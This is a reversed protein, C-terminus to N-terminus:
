WRVSIPWKSVDSRSVQGIATAAGGRANGADALRDVAASRDAGPRTRAM